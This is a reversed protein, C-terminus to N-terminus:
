YRGVHSFAWKFPIPQGQLLAPLSNPLRLTGVMYIPGSLLIDTHPTQLLLKKIFFTSYAPDPMNFTVKNHLVIGLYTGQMYKLM